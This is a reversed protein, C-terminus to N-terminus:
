ERNCKSSNCQYCMPQINDIHDTGGRALPIIHDKTWVYKYRRDPRRPIDAWARGCRPCREFNQLRAHWESRTHGGGNSQKRKTYAEARLRRCARCYFHITGKSASTWTGFDTSGCKKCTKGMCSIISSRAM